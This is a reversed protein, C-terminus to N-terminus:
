RPRAKDHGCEKELDSAELGSVRKASYSVARDM